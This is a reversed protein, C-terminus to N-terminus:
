GAVAALRAQSRLIPLRARKSDSALQSLAKECSVLIEDEAAAAAAEIAALEALLVLRDGERAETTFFAAAGWQIRKVMVSAEAEIVALAARREICWSRQELEQRLQEAEDLLDGVSLPMYSHRFSARTKQCEDYILAAAARAQEGLKNQRVTLFYCLWFSFGLAAILFFSGFLQQATNFFQVATQMITQM